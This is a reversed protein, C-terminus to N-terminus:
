QGNSSESSLKNKIEWGRKQLSNRKRVQEGGHFKENLHDAIRQYDSERRHNKMTHNFAPDNILELFAEEEGQKWPIIGRGELMKKMDPKIGKDRKAIGGSVANQRHKEPNNKIRESLLRSRRASTLKKREGESMAKEIARHTAKILVAEHEPPVETFTELTIQRLTTRTDRYKDALEEGRSALEDAIKRAIAMARTQPNRPRYDHSIETGM